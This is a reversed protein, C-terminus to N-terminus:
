KFEIPPLDAVSSENESTFENENEVLPTASPKVGSSSLNKGIGFVARGQKPKIPESKVAANPTLRRDSLRAALKRVQAAQSQKNPLDDLADAMLTLAEPLQSYEPFTKQMGNILKVASLPDGSNQCAIALQHRVPASNSIFDPILHLVRKYIILLQHEQKSTILFKLYGNAISGLVQFRETAYIFEFYQKNFERDQPFEKLAFQFLDVVGNYDGEKLRISIKVALRDRSSRAEQLEGNDVRAVFGLVGQYQFIMYGMIHFIVLTYYNMVASQAITSLLSVHEMLLANIVGVSASMIMIFGLLLGYPLGISSILQLVALPNLAESLSDSMAFVIIIAPLALMSLFVFLGSFEPGLLRYVGFNAGGIVFIIVLLRLLIVVGGEYAEVIDPPVLVGSATSNLANFCYKLFAGVLVLSLIFGFIIYNLLSTLVAVGIVIVGANANMPYRFSEELRRWFPVAHNIAGLSQVERQCSFCNHDVGQDGEDICCDCNNTECSTCYYTAPKLPHYRCFETDNSQNM